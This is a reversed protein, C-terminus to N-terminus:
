SIFASVARVRLKYSAKTDYDASGDTLYLNWADTASSETSTWYWDQEIPDAGIFELAANVAKLNTYIFYMEGLSPIYWNEHLEIRPNLGIVKLHETNTKGSWNAVADLYDDIYFAERSTTDEKNTLTIEEGGAMGQLAVLLSRSGYRIGVGKVNQWFNPNTDENFPIATNDELVIFIGDQMAAPQESSVTPTDKPEGYNMVFEYAAQADKINGWEILLDKRLLQLENM